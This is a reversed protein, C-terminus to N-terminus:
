YGRGYMAESILKSIKEILDKKDAKLWKAVAQEVVDKVEKQLDLRSEFEEEVLKTAFKQVSGEFAVQLPTKGKDWNEKSPTLLVQIAGQVLASRSDNDITKLLAESVHEKVANHMVEHPIEVKISAGESM